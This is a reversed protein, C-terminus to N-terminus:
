ATVLSNWTGNVACIFMVTKNAAISLKTDVALANIAEGVAPYVDMANAAAANIVTMSKGAVAAPLVVSDTATAVITVRSVAKTLAFAAGQGGGAHATIANQVVVAVSGFTVNSVPSLGLNTLSTPVSAVDSLNSAALLAPNTVWQPVDVNVKLVTNNAGIALKVNNTGDFYVIDGKVIMPSLNDFSTVASAVDSLNSAAILLSSADFKENLGARLGVLIDTAIVPTGDPFTSFKSM